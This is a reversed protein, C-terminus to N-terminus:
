NWPEGKITEWTEQEPTYILGCHELVTRRQGESLKLWNNVNEYSGWCGVPMKNVIFRSAEKLGNVSNNPHSHLMADVFNNALVSTWFSGPSFGYVLYNYLPAAYEDQVHWYKFLNTLKHQSVPSINM